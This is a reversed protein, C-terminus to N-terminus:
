SKPMTISFSALTQTSSATIATSSMNIEAGATAISGDLRIMTETADAAGTDAVSGLFRFWGATGSAGAIGTWTQSALKALVGAAASGFRLGNVADVGGAMNADTTTITTATSVVVLGNADAGAGRTATITVVAGSASATYGPDTQATNIAAAVATATDNLTSTFPVAADLLQVGDVTISDVSGSAGGTLTVSGTALVEQTHAGSSSTITCLLTGGPADDASTPQAGSYIQIVGNQLAQKLGGHETIYNVLGSSLRLAM